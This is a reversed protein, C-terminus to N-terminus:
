PQQTILKDSLHCTLEAYINHFQNEARPSLETDLPMGPCSRDSNVPLNCCLGMHCKSVNKMYAALMLM